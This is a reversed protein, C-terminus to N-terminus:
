LALLKSGCSFLAVIKLLMFFNGSGTFNASLKINYITLLERPSGACVLWHSQSTQVKAQGAMSASNLVLEKEWM